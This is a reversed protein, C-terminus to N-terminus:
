QDAEQGNTEQNNQDPACKVIQIVSFRCWHDRRDFSKPDAPGPVGSPNDGRLIRCAESARRTRADVLDCPTLNTVLDPSSLDSQREPEIGGRAGYM